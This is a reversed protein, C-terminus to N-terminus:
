PDAATPAAWYDASGQTRRAPLCSPDISTLHTTVDSYSPPHPALPSTWTPPVGPAGQPDGVGRFGHYMTRLKVDPREPTFPARAPTCPSRPPPDRLSFNHSFIFFLTMSNSKEIIKFCLEFPFVSKLHREKIDTTILKPRRHLDMPKKCTEQAGRSARRVRRESDM